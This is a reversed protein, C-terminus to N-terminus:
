NKKLKRFNNKNKFKGGCLNCSENSDKVDFSQSNKNDCYHNNDLSKNSNNIVASISKDGQINTTNNSVKIPFQNSCYSNNNLKIRSIQLKNDVNHNIRQYIEWGALLSIKNAYNIQNRFPLCVLQIYEDLIISESLKLLALDNSFDKSNYLEHKFYIIKYLLLTYM